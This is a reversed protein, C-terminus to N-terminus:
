RRVMVPMPFRESAVMLLARKADSKPVPALEARALALWEGVRGWCAEVAGTATVLGRVAAIDRRARPRERMAQLLERRTAREGARYAHILPLTWKGEALDRAESKGSLGDTGVLDLIDDALQFGVGFREGFRALAEAVEPSAGGSRAGAECCYGFLAGTKARVIGLYEEEELRHGAAQLEMVQGHCMRAAVVALRKLTEQQGEEPALVFARSILYDGLLVSIKNGWAAKASARGRRAAADDIVDDHVLSAAHVMEAIAALGISTESAGGACEASLLLLIPRLRKGPGSLAERAAQALFEPEGEWARRLAREVREMLSALPPYVQHLDM